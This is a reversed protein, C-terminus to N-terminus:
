VLVPTHVIHIDIVQLDLQYLSYLSQAEQQALQTNIV